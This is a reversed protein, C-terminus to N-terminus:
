GLASLRAFYIGSHGRRQSCEVLHKKRPQRLRNKGQRFGLLELTGTWNHDHDNYHEVKIWAITPCDPTYLRNATPLNEFGPPMQQAGTTLGLFTLKTSDALTIIQPTIEASVIRSILVAALSGFIIKKM